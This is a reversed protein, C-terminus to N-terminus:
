RGGGGGPHNAAPFLRFFIHIASGLRFDPLTTKWPPRVPTSDNLLTQIHQGVKQVLLRRAL